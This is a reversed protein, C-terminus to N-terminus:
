KIKTFIPMQFTLLHLFVNLNFTKNHSNIQSNSIINTNSTINYMDVLKNTIEQNQKVVDLVLNTLQKIETTDQNGMSKVLCKQQHKWLGQRHMYKKGCSCNLPLSGKAVNKDEKDDMQLGFTRSKHKDTLLHRDYQSKRSTNYMCYECNFNKSSKAVKKDDM